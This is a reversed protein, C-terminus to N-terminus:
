YGQQPAIRRFAPSSIFGDASRIVPLAASVSFLPDPLPHCDKLTSLAAHLTWAM